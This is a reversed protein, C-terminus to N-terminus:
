NYDEIPRSISDIVNVSNNIYIINENEIPDYYKMLDDPTIGMYEFYQERIEPPYVADITYTFEGSAREIFDEISVTGDDQRPFFIIAGQWMSEMTEDTASLMAPKIGFIIIINETTEVLKAATYGGM